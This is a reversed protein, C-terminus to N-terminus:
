HTEPNAVRAMFLPEGTATDTVLMLYPRDFVVQKPRPDAMPERIAVGHAMVPPPPAPATSGCGAMLLAALVGGTAARLKNKMRM